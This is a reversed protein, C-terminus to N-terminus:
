GRERKWCGGKGEELEFEGFGFATALLKRGRETLEYVISSTYVLGRSAM